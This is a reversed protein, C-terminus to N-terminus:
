DEAIKVIVYDGTDIISGESPFMSMEEVHPSNWLEQFLNKDVLELKIGLDRLFANYSLYISDSGEWIEGYRAYYNACGYMDTLHVLPNNIPRGIFVYKRDMSLLGRSNLEDVAMEVVRLSANKGEYMADIDNNSQYANGCTIFLALFLIVVKVAKVSAYKNKELIKSNTIVTSDMYGVLSLICPFVFSLGATMQMGVGGANLAFLYYMSAAIPILCLSILILLFQIYAKNILKIFLTIGAVIIMFSAFFLRFAAFRQFMNYLLNETFLYDFFVTYCKGISKPLNLIMSSVHLDNAGRYNIEPVDLLKIHIISILRYIICAVIIVIAAELIFKLAEKISKESNLVQHIFAFIILVAEVAINAQYIGVSVITLIIAAIGSLLKERGKTNINLFWVAAASLFISMGYSISTFRYSLISTLYTSTLIYASILWAALGKVKFMDIILTVAAAVFLITLVSTIPECHVGLHAIDLYPLMWRGTSFEVWNARYYNGSWLGDYTNTLQNTIFVIYFLVSFFLSFFFFVKLRFLKKVENLITKENMKLYKRLFGAESM